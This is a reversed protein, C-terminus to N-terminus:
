KIANTKEKLIDILKKRVEFMDAGKVQAGAMTLHGGGGFEELIVQVNVDGLSRGSINVSGNADFLVFSAKVGSISLLEDAVQAAAIRTNQTFEEACSVAYMDLIQANAVLQAKEKYTSFSNAFLKKVKVTDAGRRRLFASAEFTRVSTKLVFNKTDLMIGALLSQAEVGSISGPDIYQILEAVMESASSAYPEHYFIVSNKIHTVMMRHHDIVVVAGALNLLEESEVFSYSHTDTIVLLTKPTIHQIADQPTVFITEEPYASSVANIVPGALSQNKNIVIYAQKHLGNKAAAWVGVCSGVSDLDSNKHGMVYVKDSSKIQESLSSAIVRTRVKDRKEVGKSLGGFFEYQNNKQMIAVQDGGRGLAMDLAQRADNESEVATSSNSGIGISITASMDNLGKVKRVKDLVEFRREKAKAVHFEDTLMLYRGGSLKRMFGGMFERAWDRVVGEVESTIRSEEGGTADRLLEEKNDFCIIAVVAKKEVFEKHVNKFYTDDVFYFVYSGKSKVCYVTFQKDKFSVNVSKEGAVQWLTKPYLFKQINDGKVQEEGAVNELFASNAWVIDTSESCVVIPLSLENLHYESEITLIKSAAKVTATIHSKFQLTITLFSLAFLGTLTLNISFWIIDFYFSVATMFGMIALAILMYPSAVWIKRKM